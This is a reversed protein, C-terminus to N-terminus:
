RGAEGAPALRYLSVQREDDPGFPRRDWGSWREALAFGAGAALGDLEALTLYRLQWPRLRVGGAETLEVHHGEITRAAPDLRSATLVLRDLQIVGVDVGQVPRDTDPVVITEVVLWGRPRLVRAAEALCRAQGGEDIVNFLTNFAVLVLGFRDPALPVAAMDARVVPLARGASPAKAALRDLMPASIDLGTVDAGAGQLALALRGTGVGLELVPAGGALAAVQAACAEPDALDRYWDDYVDAFGTGYTESRYGEVV